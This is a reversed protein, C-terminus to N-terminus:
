TTYVRDGAKKWWGVRDQGCDTKAVLRWDCRGGKQEKFAVWAKNGGGPRQVLQVRKGSISKGKINVDSGGEQCESRLKCVEKKSFGDKVVSDLPDM